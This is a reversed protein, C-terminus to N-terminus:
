QGNRYAAIEAAIEEDTLAQIHPLAQTEKFLAELEKVAAQREEDDALVLVEVVQGARFPLNSLTIERSNKIKLRARYYERM